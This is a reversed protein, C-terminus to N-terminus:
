VRKEQCHGCYYSGRNGGSDKVYQIAQDPHKPCPEGARDFV